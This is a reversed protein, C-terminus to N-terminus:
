HWSLVKCGKATSNGYLSAPLPRDVEVSGNGPLWPVSRGIKVTVDTGYWDATVQHVYVAKGSDALQWMVVSIGTRGSVVTVSCSIMLEPAVAPTSHAPGTCAALVLLAGGLLIRKM